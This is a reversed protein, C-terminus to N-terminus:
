ADCRRWRGIDLHLHSRHLADSRPTLVLHFVSCAERAVLRLFIGRPGPDGWHRAVTIQTGDALDFGAIDIAQGVAHESRIGRPDGNRLRCAYGGFHRIRVLPTGLMRLAAPQVVDREFRLLHEATACTVQLPQDLAVHSRTMRVADRLSCDGPGTRDPLAEFVAGARALAGACSPGAPTAAPPAPAPPPGAAACGGLLAAALSAALRSM